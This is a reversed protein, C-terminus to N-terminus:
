GVITEEVIAGDAVFAKEGVISRIVKSRKGIRAGSLVISEEVVAGEGIEVGDGLVAYAGLRAGKGLSCNEGILIPQIVEIGEKKCISTPCELPTIGELADKHIQIYRNRDGVDMWYGFYLFSYIKAGKSLLLPFVEKELSCKGPPFYSLSKRNMLYIAGNVFGSRHEEVKERFERVRFFGDFQISGFPAIDEVKVTLITVDAKKRKHFTYMDSYDVDCIIDGNILFFDGDIQSAAFKTAGGTDLPEREFFYNLSLNFQYKSLSNLVKEGLYGLSLVVSDIIKQKALSSLLHYIIPKNCIPLSVKPITSTLPRLRKGEGGALIIAKM